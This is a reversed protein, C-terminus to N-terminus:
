TVGRAEHGRTARRHARWLRYEAPRNHGSPRRGTARDHRATLGLLGSWSDASRGRVDYRRRLRILRLSRWKPWREAPRYEGSDIEKCALVVGSPVGAVQQSATM